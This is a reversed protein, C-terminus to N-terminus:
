PRCNQNRDSRGTADVCPGASSFCELRPAVRKARFSVKRDCDEARHEIECQRSQRVATSRQDLRRGDVSKARKSTEFNQTRPKTSRAACQPALRRATVIWRVCRTTAAPRQVQWCATLASSFAIASSLTEAMVDEMGLGAKKLLTEFRSRAGADGSMWKAAFDCVPGKFDLKTVVSRIGASRAM